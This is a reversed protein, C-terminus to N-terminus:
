KREGPLRWLRVMGDRAGTLAYRGEASIALALVWTTIHPSSEWLL